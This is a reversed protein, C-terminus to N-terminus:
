WTKINSQHYVKRLGHGQLCNYNNFKVNHSVALAHLEFKKTHILAYYIIIIYGSSQSM